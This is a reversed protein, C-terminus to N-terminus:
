VATPGTLTELRELWLMAQERSNGCMERTPRLSTCVAPRQPQGFLACQLDATLQVCATRAPKGQPM